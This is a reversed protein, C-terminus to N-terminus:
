PIRRENPVEFEVLLECSEFPLESWVLAYNAVLVQTARREISAIGCTTLMKAHRDIERIAVEVEDKTM